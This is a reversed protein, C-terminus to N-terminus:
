TVGNDFSLFYLQQLMRQIEEQGKKLTDMRSCAHAVDNQLDAAWTPLFEETSSGGLSQGSKPDSPGVAQASKKAKSTQGPTPTTKANEPDRRGSITEPASRLTTSSSATKSMSMTDTDKNEPLDMDLVQVDQGAVDAAKRPGQKCFAAMKLSTRVANATKRFKELGKLRQRALRGKVVRQISTAALGEATCVHRHQSILKQRREERRRAYRKFNELFRPFTTVLIIFAKQSLQLCSSRREARVGSIRPHPYILEWEGIFNLRGVLFYPCEEFESVDLEGFSVKIDSVGGRETPVAVHALNGSQILLLGMPQDGLQYVKQGAEFDCHHLHSSALLALSTADHRSVKFFKNQVLIGSYASKLLSHKMDSPMDRIVEWLLKWDLDAKPKSARDAYKAATSLEAFKVCRSEFNADRLDVQTGYSQIAERKKRIEANVGDVRTVVAIVESVIVSNIVAGIMMIVIGFLVESSNEPHIDGFGVSTFVTLIFYVSNIWHSFAPKSLLHERRSLWTNELPDDSLAAVLYWVCGLLHALLLLMLAFKAVSALRSQGVLRQIFKVVPNDRFVHLLHTLRLMRTLKALRGIRYLRPLRAVKNMHSNGDGLILSFLQPPLCAIFDFWFWGKFYTWAIKKPNSVIHGRRTSYSFFFQAVLDLIFSIDIIWNTIQWGLTPEQPTELGTEGVRFDVFCMTYPMVTGTWILPFCMIVQWIQRFSNDPHIVPWWPCSNSDQGTSDSSASSKGSINSAMSGHKYLKDHNSSTGSFLTNQTDGWAVKRSYKEKSTDTQSYAPEGTQNNWGSQPEM